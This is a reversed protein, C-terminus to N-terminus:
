FDSFYNPYKMSNQSIARMAARRFCQKVKSPETITIRGSMSMVWGYFESCLTVPVEISFFDDNIKNFVVDKGFRDMVEDSLSKHITMTVMCQPRFTMGFTGNSLDDLNLADFIEKNKREASSITMEEMRDVRYLRIRNDNAPIAVLTYIDQHYLLAFPSVRYERGDHHYQKTKDTSYTYYKFRIQKNAEIAEHISDMTYLVQKNMSKVRNPVIVKRNLKKREYISCLLTLKRILTESQNKSLFRSSQVTDILLKIEMVNLDDKGKLLRYDFRRGSPRQIEIGYEELADIDQCITKRDPKCHCEKEIKEQLEKMQLGHDTDTENEFIRKLALLKVKSYNPM